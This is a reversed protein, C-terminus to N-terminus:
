LLRRDSEDRRVRKRIAESAVSDGLDDLEDALALAAEPFKPLVRGLAKVLRQVDEEAPDPTLAAAAKLSERVERLAALLTRHDGAAKACNLAEEAEHVLLLM